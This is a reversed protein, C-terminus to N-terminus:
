TLLPKISEGKEVFIAAANADWQTVGNRDTFTYPTLGNKIDLNEIVINKPMSEPSNNAGGIKIVGRGESWFNLFM